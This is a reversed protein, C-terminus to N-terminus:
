HSYENPYNHWFDSIEALTAYWVSDSGYIEDIYKLIESIKELNIRGIGDEMWDYEAVYHGMLTIVGNISVIQDIAAKIREMSWAISINQPINLMGEYYQPYVNSVKKSSWNLGSYPSSLSVYSFNSQKLAELFQFNNNEGIGWAPPRFGKPELNVKKFINRAKEIDGLSDSISRFEFEAPSLFFPIERQIHGLGHCAIEVREKKEQIWGVLKVHENHSIDYLDQTNGYYIGEYNKFSPRPITFLTVKVEPHKKLFADFLVNIGGQPDGGFDYTNNKRSRACFDDFQINLAVKKNGPWVINKTKEGEFINRSEDRHFINKYRRGYWISSLKNRLRVYFHGGKAKKHLLARSFISIADRMEKSSREQNYKVSEQKLKGAIKEKEELSLRQVSMIKAVFEEPKQSDLVLSSDIFERAGTNASIVPIVGAAGAEVAALSFAEYRAPVLLIPCRSFYKAPDQIGEGHINADIDNLKETGEGIVYLHWEPDQKRLKQFIDLVIDLGKTDGTEGPRHIIFLLHKNGYQTQINEFRSVDIYHSVPYSPISSDYKKADELVMQSVPLVLDIERFAMGLVWNKLGSRIRWNFLPDIAMVVIKGKRSVKKKFFSVWFALGGEALYIDSSPIKFSALFAQFLMALFNSGRYDFVHSTTAVLGGLFDSKANGARHIFAIRLHQNEKQM